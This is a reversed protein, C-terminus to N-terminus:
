RQDASKARRARVPRRWTEPAAASWIRSFSRYPLRSGFAAQAEMWIHKRSPPEGKSYQEVKKTLWARFESEPDPFEALPAAEGLLGRLDSQPLLIWRRGADAKHGELAVRLHVPLEGSCLVARTGPSMWLSSPFARMEGNERAVFAKVEGAALAHVLYNVARTLRGIQTDTATAEEGLAAMEEIIASDRKLLDTEHGLWESPMVRHGVADIAQELTIYGLPVFDTM